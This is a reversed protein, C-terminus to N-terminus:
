RTDDSGISTHVHFDVAYWRPATGGPVACCADNECCASLAIIACIMLLARLMAGQMHSVRQGRLDTFGRRGM